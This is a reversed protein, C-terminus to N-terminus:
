RALDQKSKNQERLDNGYQIQGDCQGYSQNSSREGNEPLHDPSTKQQGSSVVRKWGKGMDVVLSGDNAWVISGIMVVAIILAVFWLTKRM